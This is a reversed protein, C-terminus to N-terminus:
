LIVERVHESRTRGYEAAESDLSELTSEKLRITIAEM